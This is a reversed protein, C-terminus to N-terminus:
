PEDNQEVPVSRIKRIDDALADIESRLDEARSKGFRDQAADHPDM